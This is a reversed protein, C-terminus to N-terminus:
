SFVSRFVDLFERQQGTTGFGIHCTYYKQRQSSVSSLKVFDVFHM